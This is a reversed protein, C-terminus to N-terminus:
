SLALLKVIKKENLERIPYHAKAKCIMESAFVIM